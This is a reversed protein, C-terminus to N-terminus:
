SFGNRGDLFELEILGSTATLGSGTNTGDCFSLGSDRCSGTLGTELGTGAVVVSCSTASVVTSDISSIGELTVEFLCVPAQAYIYVSDWIKM